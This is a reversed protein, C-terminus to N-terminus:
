PPKPTQEMFTLGLGVAAQQGTVLSDSPSSTKL